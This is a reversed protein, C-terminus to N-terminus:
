GAPRIMLQVVEKNELQVSKVEGRYDPNTVDGSLSITAMVDLLSTESLKNGGMMMATSDDLVVERPLDSVQVPKVALPMREGKAKAFVMVRTNGPLSQLEPALSVFVRVSPLPEGLMNRAQHIGTLLSERAVPDSEVSLAKDWVALAGAYDKQEFAAIGQMGLATTNFENLTLAEHLLQGVEANFRNGNILYLVQALQAAGQDSGTLQYFRRYAQESDNMRGLALYRGGLLYLAQPNDPQSQHWSELTDLLSEANLAPEALAEAVQLEAQAGLKWYLSVALLPILLLLCISMGVSPHIDFVKATKRRADPVDSLLKKELEARMEAALSPSIIGRERQAELEKQQERFQEINTEQASIDVASRRRVLLPVITLAIAALILLVASFWFNMIM